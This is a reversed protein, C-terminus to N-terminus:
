SCSSDPPTAQLLAGENESVEKCAACASVRTSLRPKLRALTQYLTVRAGHWDATGFGGGGGGWM